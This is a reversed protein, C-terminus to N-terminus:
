TLIQHLGWQPMQHPSSPQISTFPLHSPGLPPYLWILLYDLLLPCSISTTSALLLLLSGLGPAPPVGPRSSTAAYSPVLSTASPILSTSM